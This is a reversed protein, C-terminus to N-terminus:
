KLNELNEGSQEQRNQTTLEGTVKFLQLFQFEWRQVIQEKVKDLCCSQPSIMDKNFQSLKGAVWKCYKITRKFLHVNLLM